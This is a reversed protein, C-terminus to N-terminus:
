RFNIIYYHFKKKNVEIHSKDVLGTYCVYKYLIEVIDNLEYFNIYTRDFVIIECSIHVYLKSDLVFNFLANTNSMIKYNNLVVTTHLECFNISCLLEKLIINKVIPKVINLRRMCLMFTKIDCNFQFIHQSSM